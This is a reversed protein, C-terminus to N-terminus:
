SEFDTIDHITYKNVQEGFMSFYLIQGDDTIYAPVNMESGIYATPKGLITLMEEKSSIADLANHDIKNANVPIETGGSIWTGFEDFRIRDPNYWIEGFIVEYGSETQIVFLSNMDWVLKGAADELVVSRYTPVRLEDKLVSKKIENIKTREVNTLTCFSGPFATEVLHHKFDDYFFTQTFGFPFTFTFTHEPSFSFGGAATLDKRVFWNGRFVSAIKQMEDRTLIWEREYAVGSEKSLVTRQTYTCTKPWLLIPVAPKVAILTTSLIIILAIIWGIKRRKIQAM